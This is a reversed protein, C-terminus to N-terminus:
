GAQRIRLHSYALHCRASSTVSTEESNLGRCWVPFVVSLELRASGSWRWVQEM